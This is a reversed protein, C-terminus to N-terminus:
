PRTKGSSAGTFRYGRPTIIWGGYSYSQSNGIVITTQMDIEHNLMDGITTITITEDARAAGKVIGAPTGAKKYKLLIDRAKNIHSPRGKSKPNYIVIVFDAEAAAHLRREILEWPTLRDSLSIAAFDHMLPAGLAASCSCLAPVGPIIEVVPRVAPENWGAEDREKILELVLGAMAYVGPDGSSIVSVVHGGAAEDIAAACRKVEQTMGTGIIKKGEILDPILELYTSYGAVVTSSAIAAAAKPTIHEVAGPGIGVVYLVGHGQGNNETAM